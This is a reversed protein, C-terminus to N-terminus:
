LGGNYVEDSCDSNLSSGAGQTNSYALTGLLAHSGTLDLTTNLLTTYHFAHKVM